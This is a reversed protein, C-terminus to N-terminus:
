SAADVGPIENRLGEILATDAPDFLPELDYQEFFLSAPRREPIHLLRRLRRDAPVFGRRMLRRVTEAITGRFGCVFVVAREPDLGGAPLGLVRETEGIREPRFFDEVRGRAGSWAPDDAARSVTPLYRLGFRAATEDLEARYALERAHSAGHLVACRALNPRDGARRASRVMSIFPALGTGAACFVRLRPDGAGITKDITFSGVIRRGVHLRAGPALPWVLYTLPRDTQPRAALRIYFELAERDGPDSVISYARQVAHQEPGARSTMGLTVYQGPEFWAQEAPPIRDPRVRFVALTPDLDIRAAITANEHLLTSM